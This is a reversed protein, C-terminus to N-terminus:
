CVHGGKDKLEPFPWLATLMRCFKDRQTQALLPDSYIKDGNERGDMRRGRKKRQSLLAFENM